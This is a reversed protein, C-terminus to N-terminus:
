PFAVMKWRPRISRGPRRQLIRVRQRQRRPGPRHLPASGRDPDYLRVGMLTAGTVTESFRQKSGLWGYRTASASEPNGYEDYSTATPFKTTDLPLQVVTDGHIDSLQLVNDGTASTVADLDGGSGQVNRSRIGGTNDATWDPSDTDNNPATVQM